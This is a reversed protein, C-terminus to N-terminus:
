EMEKVHTEIFNIEDPSLDYKKYLFEDTIPQSYDLEPVFEYVTKTAHQTNKKQLVLFRFFKTKMYSILNEAEKRNKMTRILIYTESCVSGPEIIFPKGIVFYPFKGREGYAYSIAVKYDGILGENKTVKEKSIYGNKPYSYIPLYGDGGNERIKENTTIGFPKRSSILEAFKLNDQKFVKELISVSENFRIFNGTNEFNLYREKATTRGNIHSIVNCPGDYKSNWLFYSVGGSIDIGPFCDTADFYDNLSVLHHDDIMTKRFNDLSKGGSFWRSPTIMMIEEPNLKKAAEFFENYIPKASARSGGDSIQYPPNGIVIDWKKKGMDKGEKMEIEKYLITKKARWQKVKCLPAKEEKEEEIDFLTMQEVMPQPVGLPVTGNLGDMQWFNWTIINTITTLLKKDVEKGWIHQYYDVFTMLLNIRGILLNDGQYEYGFVSEFARQAWKVWDEENDTNETVVRLKRDLIGIRDEIPIIEGTSANYRSVIFPAEGCTIELVTRDVYDKWKKKGFDIKETKSQWTQNDAINFVDPKGFWEEDLHNVMKNVIWSPTFVEAKSKTRQQQTELAKFARPQILVPNIGILAGSTIEYRDCYKEGYESYGDTAWIIRKGTTKDLLLKDLIMDLPYKRFEIIKEM